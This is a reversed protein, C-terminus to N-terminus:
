QAAKKAAKEAKADGDIPEVADQVQAAEEESLEVTSGPAYEKGDHHLTSKVKFKM